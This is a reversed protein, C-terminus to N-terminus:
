LLKLKRERDALAEPTLGKGGANEVADLAAQKKAEWEEREREMADLRAQLLDLEADVKREKQSRTAMRAASLIWDHIAEDEQDGNKMGLLKDLVVSDILKKNAEGFGQGSADALIRAVEAQERLERRRLEIPWNKKCWGICSQESPYSEIQPFLEQLGQLILRGSPNRSRELLWDVLQTHEKQSM